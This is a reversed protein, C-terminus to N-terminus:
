AGTWCSAHLGPDTARVGAHLGPPQPLPCKAFHMSSEHPPATEASCCCRDAALAASPAGRFSGSFSSRRPALDLSARSGASGFSAASGAVAALDPASGASGEPGAGRAVASSAGAVRAGADMLSLLRAQEEQAQNPLVM